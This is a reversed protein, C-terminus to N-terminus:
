SDFQKRPKEPNRGRVLEDVVLGVVDHLVECAPRDPLSDGVARCAPPMAKALRDFRTADGGAIIPTWRAFWKEGHRVVDPLFTERTVLAAAFRVAASWYRLTVGVGIGPALTPRDGIDALLDLVLSVKPVCAPVQCARLEAAGKSTEGILPSSPVPKGA